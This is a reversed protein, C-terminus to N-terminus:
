RSKSLARAVALSLVAGSLVALARVGPKSRRDSRVTIGMEDLRAAAEDAEAMIRAPTTALAITARALQDVTLASEGREIRSWTSQSVGVGRAVEAQELGLIERSGALIRGVVAAYTTESPLASRSM